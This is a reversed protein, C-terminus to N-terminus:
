IRYYIKRLKVDKSSLKGNLKVLHMSGALKYLKFAM